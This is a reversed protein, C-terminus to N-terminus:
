SSTKKKRENDLDRDVYAEALIEEMLLAKANVAMKVCQLISGKKVEYPNPVFLIMREKFSLIDVPHFLDYLLIDEVIFVKHVIGSLACM